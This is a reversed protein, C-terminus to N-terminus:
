PLPAIAGLAAAIPTACINDEGVCTLPPSCRSRVRVAQSKSPTMATVHLSWSPTLAACPEEKGTLPQSQTLDRAQQRDHLCYGRLHVRARGVAPSSSCVTCCTSTPSTSPPAPGQSRHHRASQGGSQMLARRRGVRRHIRATVTLTFVACEVYDCGLESPLCDDGDAAGIPLNRRHRYSTHHLRYYRRSVPLCPYFDM